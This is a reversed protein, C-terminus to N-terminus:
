RPYVLAFTFRVPRCGDNSQPVELIRRRISGSEIFRELHPVRVPGLPFIRKQRRTPLVEAVAHALFDAVQRDLEVM